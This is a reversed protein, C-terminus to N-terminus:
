TRAKDRPPLYSDVFRSSTSRLNLSLLRSLEKLIKIGTKPFKQIITEFGFQSLTVLKATTTATVTASRRYSDIISMEGISRGNSLRALIVKADNTSRKTVELKGEIVFCIYDGVDGEKFVVEGKKLEIIQMYAAVFKLEDTDLKDFLPIYILHKVIEESM